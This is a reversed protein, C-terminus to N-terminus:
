DRVTGTVLVPLDTRVWSEVKEYLSAFVAVPVSGTMDERVAKLM